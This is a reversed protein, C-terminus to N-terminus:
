VYRGIVDVQAFLALTVDLKAEYSALPEGFVPELSAARDRNLDILRKANACHNRVGTEAAIIMAKHLEPYRYSFVMDGDMNLVKSSDVNNEKCWAKAHKQFVHMWFATMTHMLNGIIADHEPTRLSSRRALEEIMDIVESPLVELNFVQVNGSEVHPHDSMFLSPAPAPASSPAPPQSMELNYM